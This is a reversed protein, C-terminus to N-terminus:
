SLWGPPRSSSRSQQVLLRGLESLIRAKREEDDFHRKLEAQLAEIREETSLEENSM